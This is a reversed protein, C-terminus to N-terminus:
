PPFLSVSFHHRDSCKIRTTKFTCPFMVRLTLSQLFYEQKVLTCRLDHWGRGNFSLHICLWVYVKSTNIVCFFVNFTLVVLCTVSLPLVLVAELFNVILIICVCRLHGSINETSEIWYSRQQKTDSAVIIAVEPLFLTFYVVRDRSHITTMLSLHLLNYVIGM